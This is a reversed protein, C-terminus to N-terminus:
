IKFRDDDVESAMVFLSYMFMIFILGGTIILPLFVYIWDWNIVNVTKLILFATNLILGILITSGLFKRIM